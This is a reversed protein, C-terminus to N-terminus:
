AFYDLKMTARVEDMVSAATSRAQETGRQLMRWVEAPDKAYEQRSTRVPALKDNLIQILHDKIEGDGLGGAEYREKLDAVYDVDEDFADLYAFPVHGAVHGPAAVSTKRPDTYM